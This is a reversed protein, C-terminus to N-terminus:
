INPKIVIENDFTARVEVGPLSNYLMQITKSQMMVQQSLSEVRDQYSTVKLFLYSSIFLLIIAAAYTIASLIKINSFLGHKVKSKSGASRLIREELEIPFKETSSDVVNRISSLQKFYVRGNEDGALLSFLNAEEGRSLEEDFYLNIMEMLKNEQM